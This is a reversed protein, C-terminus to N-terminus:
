YLSSKGFSQSNSRAKDQFPSAAESAVFLARYSSSYSANRRPAVVIFLPSSLCLLGHPEALLGRTWLSSSFFQVSSHLHHSSTESLSTEETRRAVTWYTASLDIVASSAALVVVLVLIACIPLKRSKIPPICVVFLASTHSM